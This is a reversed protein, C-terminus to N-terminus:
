REGRPRGKEHTVDWARLASQALAEGQRVMNADQYREGIGQLVGAVLAQAAPTSQAPVPPEAPPATRKTRVM